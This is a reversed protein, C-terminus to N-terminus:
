FRPSVFTIETNTKRPVKFLFEIGKGFVNRGLHGGSRGLKKKIFGEVNYSANTLFKSMNMWFDM